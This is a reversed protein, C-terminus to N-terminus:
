VGVHCSYDAFGPKYFNPAKEKGIKGGIQGWVVIKVFHFSKELMIAFRSTYKVVCHFNVFIFSAEVILGLAVGREAKM